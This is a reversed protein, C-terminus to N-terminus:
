KTKEEVMKVVDDITILKELIEDEISINYKEELDLIVDVIRASNIKLDAIIRTSGSYDDWVSPVLTYKKLIEVISNRIEEM